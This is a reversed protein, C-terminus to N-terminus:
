PKIKNKLRQIYIDQIHQILVYTKRKTWKEQKEELTLHNRELTSVAIIIEYYYYYNRIIAITFSLAFEASARRFLLLHMSAGALIHVASVNNEQSPDIHKMGDTKVLDICPIHSFGAM